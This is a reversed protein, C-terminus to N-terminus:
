GVESGVQSFWGGSVVSGVVRAHGQLDVWPRLCRKVSVGGFFFFFDLVLCM